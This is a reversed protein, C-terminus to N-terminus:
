DVWIEERHIRNVEFGFSSGESQHEESLNSISGFVVTGRNDRAVVTRKSTVFSRLARRESDYNPGHPIIVTVEFKDTQHEGFETVQFKRGALVLQKGGVDISYSRLDRGYIFNTSTGQPDEPFHLWLGTFRAADASVTVSDTFSELTTV